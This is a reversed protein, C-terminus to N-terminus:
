HASARLEQLVTVDPLAVPAHASVWAAPGSLCVGHAITLCGPEAIGGSAPAVSSGIMVGIAAGIAISALATPITFIGRM